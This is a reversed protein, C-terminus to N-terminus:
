RWSRNRGCRSLMAGCLINALEQIVQGRQADTLEEPGPGPLGRRHIPQRRRFRWCCRESTRDKLDFGPRLRGLLWAHECVRWKPRPSSCRRWCKLRWRAPRRREVAPEQDLRRQNTELEHLCKAAGLVRELEERLAEPSFPKTMYGEAGLAIM